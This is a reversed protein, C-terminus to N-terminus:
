YSELRESQKVPEQRRLEDFGIPAWQNAPLDCFMHKIFFLTPNKLCCGIELGLRKMELFNNELEVATNIVKKLGLIKAQNSEDSFHCLEDCESKKEYLFNEYHNESVCGFEKASYQPHNAMNALVINVLGIQSVRQLFKNKTEFLADEEYIAVGRIVMCPQRLHCAEPKECVLFDTGDKNPVFLCVVRDQFMKGIRHAIILVCQRQHMLHTLIIYTSDYCPLVMRKDKDIRMLLPLVLSFRNLHPLDRLLGIVFYCSIDSIEQQFRRPIKRATTNAVKLDAIIKQYNISVSIGYDDKNSFTTLFRGQVLFLVDQPLYFLLENKELFADIREQSDLLSHYRGGKNNKLQEYKELCAKAIQHIIGFKIMSEKINEMEITSKSRQCGLLTQYARIQCLTDGVHSDFVVLNKDCYFDRITEIIEGTFFVVLRLLRIKMEQNQLITREGQPLLSLISPAQM